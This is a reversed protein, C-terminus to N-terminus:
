APYPHTGRGRSGTWVPLRRVPRPRPGPPIPTPHRRSTGPQRVTAAHFAAAGPRTGQGTGPAAPRLRPSDTGWVEIGRTAAHRLGRRHRPGLVAAARYPLAVFPRRGYLGRRRPDPLLLVAAQGDGDYSSTYARETVSTDSHGLLRAVARLNAGKGARLLETAFSHRLSHATEEIGAAHMTRAILKSVHSVSINRTPIAQNPLLPGSRPLRASWAVLVEVVLPALPVKRHKDGKGHAVLWPREDRLHLHEVRLRAIEGVRLGAGYALWVMVELRDDSVDALHEFLDALMRQSLARPMPERRRPVVFQRMRDRGTLEHAAAWRYFLCIIAAYHARSVGSLVTGPQSDQARSPRNLFRELDDPLARLPHTPAIFTWFAFLTYRYNTITERSRRRRVLDDRYQGWIALTRPPGSVPEFV